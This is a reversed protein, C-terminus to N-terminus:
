WETLVMLIFLRERGRGRTEKEREDKKTCVTTLVTMGGKELEGKRVPSEHYGM